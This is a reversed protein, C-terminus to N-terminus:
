VRGETIFTSGFSLVVGRYTIPGSPGELIVDTDSAGTINLLNNGGAVQAYAAAFRTVLLDVLDDLRDETESADQLADVLVVTLGAFTRTMLQGGLAITEDRSGIYACPTEPFSGPRANYVARLQTPTAAVQALLVARVGAVLDSRYTTM